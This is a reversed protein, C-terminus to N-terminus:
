RGRASGLERSHTVNVRPQHGLKQPEISAPGAECENTGEDDEEIVDIVEDVPVVTPNQRQDAAGSFHSRM